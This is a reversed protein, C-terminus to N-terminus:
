FPIAGFFIQGNRKCLKDSFDLDLYKASLAKRAQERVKDHFSPFITRAQLLLMRCVIPPGQLRTGSSREQVVRAGQSLAAGSLSDASPLDAFVLRGQRNERPLALSRQPM